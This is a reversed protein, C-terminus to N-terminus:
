IDGQRSLGSGNHPAPRNLEWAWRRLDRWGCMADFLDRDAKIQAADRSAWTVTTHRDSAAAELQRCNPSLPAWAVLAAIAAVGTMLLAKM